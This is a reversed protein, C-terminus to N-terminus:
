LTIYNNEKKYSHKVQKQDNEFNYFYLKDYYIMEKGNKTVSFQFLYYKNEEIDDIELGISLLDDELLSFVSKNISIEEKTEEDIVKYYNVSDFDNFFCIKIEFDQTGITYNIVKM